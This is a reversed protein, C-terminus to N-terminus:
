SQNGHPIKELTHALCAPCLCTASGVDAAAADSTPNVALLHPLAYCWCTADASVMGCRFAAGCAACVSNDAPQNKSTAASM